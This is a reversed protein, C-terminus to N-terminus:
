IETTQKMHYLAFGSERYLTNLFFLEWFINGFPDILSPITLTKVHSLRLLTNSDAVSSASLSHQGDNSHSWLAVTPIGLVPELHYDMMMISLFALLVSYLSM